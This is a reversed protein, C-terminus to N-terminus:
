TFCAPFLPIVVVEIAAEVGLFPIFSVFCSNLIRLFPCFAMNLILSSLGPSM